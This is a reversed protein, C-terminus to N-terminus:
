LALKLDAQRIYGLEILLASLAVPIRRKRSRLAERVQDSTALRLEEIITVLDTPTPLREQIRRVRRLQEANILGTEVLLEGIVDATVVPREAAAITESSEANMTSKTLVSAQSGM